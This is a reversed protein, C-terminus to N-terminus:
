ICWFASARWLALPPAALAASQALLGIGWAFAVALQIKM